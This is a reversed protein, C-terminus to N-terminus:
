ETRLAVLPDVKAARRAPVLSAAVAALALAVAVATLTLPDSPRVAFLLGQLLRTLALSGALGFAIGVVVLLLNQGLVMKWIDVPKAGIAMRIGIERSRLAVLYSTVGFVGLVAIGLAALSFAGLVGSSLRQRWLSDGLRDAMSTIDAVALEPDISRIRLRISSLTTDPDGGGNAVFNTVFYLNRWIDESATQQSMPVWAAADPDSDLAYMHTDGVVGAVIRPASGPLSEAHGIWIMKGVPDEGRFYLKALKENIVVVPQADHADSESLLRGYKLPIGMAEFYGPTIVSYRVLPLSSFSQLGKPDSRTIAQLWRAGPSFPIAQALGEQKLGPIDQTKERIQKALATIEAPGPYRAKPASLALTLRHASDFGPAVEQLRVFSRMLLGAGSLPVLALAIQAAIVAGRLRSNVGASGNVVGGVALSRALESRLTKIVPLFGAFIAALATLCLTGLLVVADIRAHLWPIERPPVFSLLLRVGAPALFIGLVGGIGLLLLTEIFLQRLLVSQSAGLAVRLAIEKRRAELHVVRLYGMNLCLLLLAFGVAGSLAILPARFNGAVGDRMPIVLADYDKDEAFQSSLREAVVNLAAQAMKPTVGPRLRAAVRYGRGARDPSAFLSAPLATWVDVQDEPPFAFGPPAVGVVIHTAGNLHITKGPLAPDAAYARRWFDYSLLVRREGSKADDSTLLRGLAPPVTLTSFVDPSIVAARIREPNSIGPGSATYSWPLWVVMDSFLNRTNEKWDLYNPISASIQNLSASKTRHEWVYVWRDTDIPGYSRLLVANLLSFVSTLAAIGLALMLVTVVTYTPRRALLRASYRIDRLLNEM